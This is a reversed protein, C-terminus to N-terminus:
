RARQRRLRRPQPRPRRLCEAGPPPLLLPGRESGARAPAEAERLDGPNVPDFFGRAPSRDGSGLDTGGIVLSASAFAHGAGSTSLKVRRRRARRWYQFRTFVQRVKSSSIRNPQWRRFRSLLLGSLGAVCRTSHCPQRGHPAKGQRRGQSQSGKSAGSPPLMKGMWPQPMVQPVEIGTSAKSGPLRLPRSRSPWPSCLPIGSMSLFSM